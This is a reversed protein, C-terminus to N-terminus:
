QDDFAKLWRYPYEKAAQGTLPRTTTWSNVEQDIQEKLRQRRRKNEEQAGEIRYRDIQAQANQRAAELFQQAELRGQERTAEAERTAQDRLAEAEDLVKKTRRRGVFGVISLLALVLCGVLTPVPTTHEWALSSSRRLSGWLGEPSSWGTAISTVIASTAQYAAYLIAVASATAALWDKRFPKTASVWIAAFIRRFM